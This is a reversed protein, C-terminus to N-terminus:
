QRKPLKPFFSNGRIVYAYDPSADITAQPNFTPNNGYIKKHLVKGRATAIEPSDKDRLISKKVM